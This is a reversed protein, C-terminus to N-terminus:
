GRVLVLTFDDQLEGGQLVARERLGAVATESPGSAAALVAEWGTYKWVGDTVALLAWPALLRAGFERFVATGSGVPPNKFQEATLVTCEGANFLVAASDGSSTGVLEGDYVALMVLTTYGAGAEREVAEDVARGLSACAGQHFLREVPLRGALDVFAQCALRAAEAGGPWGGQGDAIACLLCDPCAPHYTIAFADENRAHWGRESHTVIAFM